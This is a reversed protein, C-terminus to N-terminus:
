QGCGASVGRGCGARGCGLVPRGTNKEVQVARDDWLEIMLPDKEATIPLAEGLHTCCWQAIVVLSEDRQSPVAVRATLIRVEIGEALWGRVRDVMAPVPQGIHHVGRWGDDVALTGDLDVGIWGRSHSTM